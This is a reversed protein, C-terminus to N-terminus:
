LQNPESVNQGVGVRVEVLRKNPVRDDVLQRGEDRLNLGHNLGSFLLSARCSSSMCLVRASRCERLCLVRPPWAQPVRACQHPGAPAGRTVASPARRRRWAQALAGAARSWRCHEACAQQFPSATGTARPRTDSNALTSVLRADRVVDRPDSQRHARRAWSCQREDIRCGNALCACVRAQAQRSLSRCM